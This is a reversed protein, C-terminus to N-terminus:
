MSRLPRKGQLRRAERALTAAECAELRQLAAEVSGTRALAKEYIRRLSRPCWPRLAQTAWLRLPLPLRDHERMPDQSRGPPLTRSLNRRM